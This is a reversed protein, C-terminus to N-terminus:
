RPSPLRTKRFTDSIFVADGFRLQGNPFRRSPFLDYLTYGHERLLGWIRDLLPVGDYHPTAFWELMVIDIADKKLMRAGGKLIDYESGQADIKLCSIHDVDNRSCWTDLRITDVTIVDETTHGSQAAAEEGTNSFLSSSEDHDAVRFRAKGTSDSMAMQHVKVTPFRALKRTVFECNSAIPEILHIPIDCFLRCLFLAIQGRNAGIDVVAGSRDSHQSLRGVAGVPGEMQRINKLHWKKPAPPTAVDM